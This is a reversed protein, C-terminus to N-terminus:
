KAATDWGAHPVFPPAVSAPLLIAILFNKLVIAHKLVRTLVGQFQSYIQVFITKIYMIYSTNCIPVRVLHVRYHIIGEGSDWIQKIDIYICYSLKHLSFIVCVHAELVVCM